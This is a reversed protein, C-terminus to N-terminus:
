SDDGEDPVDSGRREALAGRYIYRAFAVTALFGILALAIAVDLYAYVGTSLSFVGIFVIGLLAMMDLSVVRDALTPGRLLRFVTLAFSMMIAVYAIDISWELFQAGFEAM